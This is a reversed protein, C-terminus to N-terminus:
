LYLEIGETKMTGVVSKEKDKDPINAARLIEMWTSQPQNKKREKQKKTPKKSNQKGHPGHYKKYTHIWKKVLNPFIICELKLKEGRGGQRESDRSMCVHNAM